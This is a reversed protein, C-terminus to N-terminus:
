WTFFPKVFSLAILPLFHFPKAFASTNCSDTTCGCVNYEITDSVRSSDDVEKSTCDDDKEWFGNKKLKEKEACGRTTLINPEDFGNWGSEIWYQKFCVDEDKSCNVRNNGSWDDSWNYGTNHDYCELAM